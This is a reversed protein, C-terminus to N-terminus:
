RGVRVQITGSSGSGVAEMANGFRVGAVNDKNIKITAATDYYLVDNVNIASGTTNNVAEALLDFVGSFKVTTKGAADEDTLAVGPVDGFLVPDGSSPTTPATCTVSLQDGDKYVCNTAM